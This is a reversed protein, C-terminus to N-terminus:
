KDPAPVQKWPRTVQRKHTYTKRPLVNTQLRFAHLKRCARGIWSYHHCPYRCKLSWKHMNKKQTHIKSMRIAYFTIVIPPWIWIRIMNECIGEPSSVFLLQFHGYFYHNQGHIAHHNEMAINTWWLTVQLLNPAHLIRNWAVAPCNVM